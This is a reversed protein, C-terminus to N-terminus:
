NKSDDKENQTAKLEDQMIKEQKKQNDDILEVCEKLSNEMFNNVENWLPRIIVKIFGIEQKAINALNDLGKMFPTIPLGLKEEEIALSPEIKNM